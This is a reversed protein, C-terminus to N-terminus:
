LEIKGSGTRIRRIHAFPVVGQDKKGEPMSYAKGQQM